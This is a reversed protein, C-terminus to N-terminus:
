FYDPDAGLRADSADLATIADIQEDTLEFGFVDFNSAIRSPTVSKPIVINGLSLHWRLIVQAPSKGVEQAIQGIVPDDLVAGQGLPSWAETAIGHEAHFARLEPQSFRPHLEIQNVSPAQGTEDLLRQLHAITFNSVGVSKARGSEKIELLARWTEVYLGDSPRPWHILYLDVYDAGLRVLSDDFARLARDRGHDDNWLKTTLFIEERAIGSERIAAGTGAENDYIRATDVSRYGVRLAEAVTERAQDDPVQWVGYGLAPIANGDNLTILPATNQASSTM